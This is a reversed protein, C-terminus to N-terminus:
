VEIRAVAALFREILDINKQGPSSEVGSSVDVRRAGSVSVAETVNEATLGGSLMWPCAWTQDRLLGWDFSLANGGPLANVAAAPPKADFLLMDATHEYERARALDGQASVRIAKMVPVGFKRQIEAVRGPDEAGHLQLLSVDVQATVDAILDDDPDVMVAVKEVGAAAGALGAAQAPSVNRPSREYFVFGVYRAGAAVASQVAEATSLGCIKGEVGTM